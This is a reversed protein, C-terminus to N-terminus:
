DVCTIVAHEGRNSDKCATLAAADWNLFLDARHESNPVALDDTDLVVQHSGLGEFRHPQLSLRHRLLVHLSQPLPQLGDITAVPGGKQRETIRLHFVNGRAVPGLVCRDHTALSYPVEVDLSVRWPVLRGELEGLNHVDPVLLDHGVQSLLHLTFGAAHLDRPGVPLHDCKTLAPRKTELKESVPGFGEFGHP